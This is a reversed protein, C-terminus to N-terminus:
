QEMDIVNPDSAADQALWAAGNADSIARRREEPAMRIAFAQPLMSPTSEDEWRRQNLWTSAFPVFKGGERTWQDCVRFRDLAALIQELLEASPSLKAFAKQAPVKSDKRPYAKWFISFAEDKEIKRSEKEVAKDITSERDKEIENERVRTPTPNTKTKTNTKTTRGSLFRFFRPFVVGGLGGGDRSDLLFRSSDLFTESFSDLLNRSSDLLEGNEFRSLWGVELLANSFGDLRV